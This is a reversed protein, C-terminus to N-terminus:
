KENHFIAGFLKEMLGVKKIQSYFRKEIIHKFIFVDNDFGDKVRVMDVLKETSIHIRGSERDEILWIDGVNEDDDEDDSVLILDDYIESLVEVEDETMEHAEPVFETGVHDEDWLFGPEGVGDYTLFNVIRNKKILVCFTMMRCDKKNEREILVGLRKSGLSVWAAVSRLTEDNDAVVLLNYESM